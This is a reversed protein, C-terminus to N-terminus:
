DDDQGKLAGELNTVIGELEDGEEAKVKEDDPMAHRKVVASMMDLCAQYGKSYSTEKGDEKIEELAAKHDEYKVFEGDEDEEMSCVVFHVKMQEYLEYRKIGSM